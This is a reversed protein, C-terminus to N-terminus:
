KTEKAKNKTKKKPEPKVVIEPINVYKVVVGDTKNNTETFWDEHNYSLVKKYHAKNLWTTVKLEGDIKQRNELKYFIDPNNNKIDKIDETCDKITM